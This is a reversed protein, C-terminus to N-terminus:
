NLLHELNLNKKKLILWTRTTMVKRKVVVKQKQTVRSLLNEPLKRQRRNTVTPIIPLALNRRKQNRENRENLSLRHLSQHLLLNQNKKQYPKYLCSVKRFHSSVKLGKPTTTTYDKRLLQSPNLKRTVYWKNYTMVSLLVQFTWVNYLNTCVFSALM